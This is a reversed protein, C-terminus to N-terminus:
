QTAIKHVAARLSTIRDYVDEIDSPTEDFNHYSVILRAPDAGREVLPGYHSAEIDCYDAARSAEALLRLRADEEVVQRGGENSHRCTVIIPLPRGQLFPSLRTPDEFDFDRLFDLRIEALDAVAAAEKIARAVGETTGETIVACVRATKQEM